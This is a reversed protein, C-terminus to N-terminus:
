YVDWMNMYWHAWTCLTIPHLKFELVKMIQMEMDVIHDKDYGGDTALAFDNVRPIYVEEIKCSLLLSAVGILQLESKPVMYSARCLYRDIFNVSMYLTERKLMFEESVETIWDILIERMKHSINKQARLRKLDIVYDEERIIM